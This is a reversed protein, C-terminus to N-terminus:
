RNLDLGISIAASRTDAAFACKVGWIEPFVKAFTQDTAVWSRLKQLLPQSGRCLLGAEGRAVPVARTRINKETRGMLGAVVETSMPPVVSAAPVCM